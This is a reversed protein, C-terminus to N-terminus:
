RCCSSSAWPAAGGRAGLPLLSIAVDAMTLANTIDLRTAYAIVPHSAAHRADPSRGWTSGLDAFRMMGDTDFQGYAQEAARLYHEAARQNDGGLQFHEAIIQPAKEGADLLYHAAAPHGSRRDFETLLSCVADRLPHSSLRVGARQGPPERPAARHELAVLHDLWRDLGEADAGLLRVVGGPLLDPWFM